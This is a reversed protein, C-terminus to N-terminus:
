CFFSRLLSLLTNENLKKESGRMKVKCQHGSPNRMKEGGSFFRWTTKGVFFSDGENKIEREIDRNGKKENLKAPRGDIKEKERDKELEINWIQPCSSVSVSVIEAKRKRRSQSKLQRQKVLRPHSHWKGGFYSRTANPNGYRNISNNVNTHRHHPRVTPRAPPHGNFPM